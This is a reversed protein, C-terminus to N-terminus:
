YALTSLLLTIGLNLSNTNIQHKETNTAVLESYIIKGSLNIIEINFNKNTPNTFKITTYNKFPNPYIAWEFHSDENLGIGDCADGIGDNNFDSQNPNYVLPCNDIENCIEDDDNDNICNGNCDYLFILQQKYKPVVYFLLWKSSTSMM